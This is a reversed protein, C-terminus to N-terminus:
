FTDKRISDNGYFSKIQYFSKALEQSLFIFLKRFFSFYKQKESILIILAFIYNSLRQDSHVDFARKLLTKGSKGKEVSKLSLELAKKEFWNLDLTFTGFNIICLGSLRLYKCYFFNTWFYLSFFLKRGGSSPQVSFLISHSHPSHIVKEMPSHLTWLLSGDEESSERGGADRYQININDKTKNNDKM